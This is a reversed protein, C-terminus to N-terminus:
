VFQCWFNLNQFGGCFNLLILLRKSLHNISVGLWLHFKSFNSQALRGSKNLTKNALRRLHDSWCGLFYFLDCFSCFSILTIITYFGLSATSLPNVTVVRLRCLWFSTCALFWFLTTWAFLNLEFFLRSYWLWCLLWYHVHSCFFEKINQFRRFLSMVCLYSLITIIKWWHSSQWLSTHVFFYRRNFQIM